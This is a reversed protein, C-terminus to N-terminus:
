IPVGYLVPSQASSITSIEVYTNQSQTKNSFFLRTPADSLDMEDHDM